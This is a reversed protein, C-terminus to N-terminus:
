RTWAEGNWKKIIWKLITRVDLGLEKLHDEWCFGQFLREKGWM